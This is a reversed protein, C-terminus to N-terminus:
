AVYLTGSLVWSILKKTRMQKFNMGVSFSANVYAMGSWCLLLDWLVTRMEYQSGLIPGDGEGHM